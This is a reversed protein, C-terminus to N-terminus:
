RHGVVETTLRELYETLISDRDLFPVIGRVKKFLVVTSDSLDDVGRIEAAQCACILEFSIIYKTNEFIERARRAAVLGFSVIDQFDATTSLSQISLPTCLSRNEATLSATMFQGGMLGLRLGPDKSCLFPPLGNSHSKDLFRDVRRNALNSLTTLGISLFDMAMAVYQGHFHGNHFIENSDSVILPNDNSSNLENQVITRVYELGDVVPGLIQPTCRISYADEIQSNSPKVSGDQELQIKQQTEEEQKIMKSSELYDFIKQAVKLQGLHPKLKHVEPDFPKKIAHLGEFSLSSILCYQELLDHMERILCCAIGTM